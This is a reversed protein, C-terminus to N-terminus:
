LRVSGATDSAAVGAIPRLVRSRIVVGTGASAAECDYVERWAPASAVRRTANKWFRDFQDAWWAMPAASVLAAEIHVQAAARHRWMADTLYRIWSAKPLVVHRLVIIDFPMPEDSLHRVLRHSYVHNYFHGFREAFAHDASAVDAPDDVALVAPGGGFRDDLKGRTISETHEDGFREHHAFYAICASTQSVHERVVALDDSLLRYAGTAPLENGGRVGLTTWRKARAARAAEPEWARVLEHVHVPPDPEGFATLDFEFGVQTEEPPAAAGTYREYPMGRGFRGPHVLVHHLGPPALWAKTPLNDLRLQYVAYQAKVVQLHQRCSDTWNDWRVDPTVTGNRNRNNYVWNLSEEYGEPLELLRANGEGAGHPIFSRINFHRRLSDVDRAFVARAREALEPPLTKRYSRRSEGQACLGVANQHYGIEFGARELEQYFPINLDDVTWLRRQPTDDYDFENFLFINSVVGADREWGAMIETEIPYYDIHHDLIINIADPDFDRAYAQSFTIFRAGRRKLIEIFRVFYAWPSEFYEPTPKWLRHVRNFPNDRSVPVSAANTPHVVEVLRQTM